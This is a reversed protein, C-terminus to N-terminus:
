VHFPNIELGVVAAPHGDVGTLIIHEDQRHRHTDVLHSVFAVLSEPSFFYPHRGDLPKWCIMSM